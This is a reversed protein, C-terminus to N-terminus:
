EARCADRNSTYTPTLGDIVDALKELGDADLNQIASMVDAAALFGQDAASLANLCSQPSDNEGSSMVASVVLAVLFGWLLPHRAFWSPNKPQVPPIYQQQPQPAQQGWPTSM